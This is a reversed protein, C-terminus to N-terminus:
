PCHPPRASWTQGTGIRVVRILGFLLTFTQLDECSFHWDQMITICKARPKHLILAMYPSSPRKLQFTHYNVVELKKLELIQIQSKKKKQCCMFDIRHYKLPVYLTDSM